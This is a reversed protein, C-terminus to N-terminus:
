HLVTLRCVKAGFYKKAKLNITFESTAVGISLVEPNMGMFSFAYNDTGQSVVTPKYFNSFEM